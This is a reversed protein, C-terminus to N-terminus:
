GLLIEAVQLEFAEIGTARQGDREARVKTVGLEQSRRLHHAGFPYEVRRAADEVHHRLDVVGVVEFALRAFSRLRQADAREDRRFDGAGRSAVQERQRAVRQHAALGDPDDVVREGDM